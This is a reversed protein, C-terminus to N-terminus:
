ADRSQAPIVRPEDQVGYRANITSVFLRAVRQATAKTMRRAADRRGPEDEFYLYAVCTGADDRIEFSEPHEIITFPPHPAQRRDHSSRGGILQLGRSARGM